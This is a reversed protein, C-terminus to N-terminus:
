RLRRNMQCAYDALPMLGIKSRNDDILGLNGANRPEFKRSLWDFQTGFRQQKGESLLIRDVLRALDDAPLEGAEFRQLFAPEVSAQFRPDGDAHQVLLWTWHVGLEGVENVTPLGHDAFLKKLWALNNRDLVVVREKVGPADPTALLGKRAEQDEAIRSRLEERLDPAVFHRDADRLEM